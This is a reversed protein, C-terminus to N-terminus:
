GDGSQHESRLRSVEELVQHEMRQLTEGLNDFQEVSVAARLLLLSGRAFRAGRLARKLQTIRLGYNDPDDPDDMRGSLGQALGGM